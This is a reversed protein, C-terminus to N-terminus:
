KKQDVFDYVFLKDADLYKTHKEVYKLHMPHKLYTELGEFDDFLVLLGVDYDKRAFDPAAKGAPKGARLDRVTPIPRLLEHADAILAEAEGAPADKKLHFIVAHVYPPAKDAAPKELKIATRASSSFWAWVILGALALAAVTRIKRIM